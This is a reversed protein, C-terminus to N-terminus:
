RAAALPKPARVRYTRNRLAREAPGRWGKRRMLEAILVTALWVGAGVAVASAASLQPGWGVLYPPFLIMWAVSQLLYSTMSRQGTAALATAIRGPRDGIRAAILGILAAYGLGGMYGAVTTLWEVGYIAATGGHWAGMNHLGLPLGGVIGMPIGVFAVRRLLALHRTPEELIRRRAAWVGILFPFVTTVFMFPTFVPWMTLRGILDTIPDAGMVTAGETTDGSGLTLLVAYLGSGVILWVAAHRLLKADSFRLVGAFALAVLGYVSLIDGFFLLVVHALGFLLLWRGRRRVLSRIPPWPWSQAQRRLYIQCLGYGFLAAFMPYGRADVLMPLLLETVADLTSTAHGGGFMEAMIRGHAAAIVLLMVGRALDPALSRRAVPVAAPVPTPSTESM